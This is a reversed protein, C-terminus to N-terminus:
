SVLHQPVLFGKTDEEGLFAESNRSMKNKLVKTVLTSLDEARLWDCCFFVECYFTRIVGVFSRLVCRSGMGCFIVLKYTFRNM